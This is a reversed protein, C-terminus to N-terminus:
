NNNNAISVILKRGEYQINNLKAVAEDAEEKSNMEVFSTGKSNGENDYLLRARIAKFSNERFFDM